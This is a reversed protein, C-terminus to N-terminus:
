LYPKEFNILIFYSFEKLCHTNIQSRFKENQLYIFIFSRTHKHNESSKQANASSCHESLLLSPHKFSSDETWLLVLYLFPKIQDCYKFLQKPINIRIVHNKPRQHFIDDTFNQNHLPQLEPIPGRSKSPSDDKPDFRWQNPSLYIDFLCM